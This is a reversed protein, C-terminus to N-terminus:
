SVLSVVSSERSAFSSAITSIHNTKSPFWVLSSSEYSKQIVKPSAIQKEACQDHEKHHYYVLEKRLPSHIKMVLRKCEDFEFRPHSLSTHLSESNFLATSNFERIVLWHWQKRHFIGKSCYCRLRFGGDIITILIEVSGVLWFGVWSWVTRSVTVSLAVAAFTSRCEHM